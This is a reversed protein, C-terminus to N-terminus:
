PHTDAYDYRQTGDAYYRLFIFLGKMDEYNRRYRMASAKYVNATFWMHRLSMNKKPEDPFLTAYLTHEISFTLPDM